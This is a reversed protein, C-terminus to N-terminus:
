RAAARVRVPTGPALSAAEGVLVTDGPTLGRVIEVRETADDRVGLEVPVRETRGGRVRLVTPQGSSEDVATLPVVPASRAQTLVRGEAFLGAALRGEPNALEVVVQAQRTAPDVAPAIRTVRGAVRVGPYGQVTVEVPTGVRLTPLAAAPVTGELRLSTPDLVVFLLAGPGVVDGPSVQRQAVVGAIPARVQTRALQRRAQRLQAEAAAQQSRAAELAQRAAELDRPALAGARVLAATREVNRQANAVAVQAAAVAAAAAEATAAVPASELRALLQGPRVRTGVDAFVALVTGNTEALLRAERAAALTGTLTPGARLEEVRVVAVASPDLEVVAAAGPESGRTRQCGVLVIM